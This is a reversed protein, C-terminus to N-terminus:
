RRLGHNLSSQSTQIGGKSGKVASINSPVQTTALFYCLMKKKKTDNIAVFKNQHLLHVPHGSVVCSTGKSTGDLDQM